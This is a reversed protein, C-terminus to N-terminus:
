GSEGDMVVLDKGEVVVQDSDGHYAQVEAATRDLDEDGCSLGLCPWDGM